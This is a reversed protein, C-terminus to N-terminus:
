AMKSSKEFLRRASRALAKEIQHGNAGYLGIGLKKM